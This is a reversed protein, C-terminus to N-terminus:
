IFKGGASELKLKAEKSFLFGSLTLAKDITGAGLVKVRGKISKGRQILGKEFVLMPTVTENAAFTASLIGLNVVLPKPRIPKLSNKGRGRLKPLKKIIDRLEPRKKRGARANQGKTGRGSTKGRKGGRGVRKAKARKTNRKLEHFQM